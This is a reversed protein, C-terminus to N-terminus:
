HLVSGMLQGPASRRAPALIDGTNMQCVSSVHNLGDAWCSRFIAMDDVHEAMHPYWDPFGFATEGYQKFSRKSAMLTNSATGM